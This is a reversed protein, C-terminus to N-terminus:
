VLYRPLCVRRKLRRADRHSQERDIASPRTWCAAVWLEPATLPALRAAREAVLDGVDTGADDWAGAVPRSPGTVVADLPAPDRAFREDVFVETDAPHDVVLLSAHDVFHTPQM